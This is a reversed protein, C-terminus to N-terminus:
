PQPADGASAALTIEGKRTRAADLGDADFADGRVTATM